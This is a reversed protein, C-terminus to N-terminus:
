VQTYPFSRLTCYVEPNCGSINLAPPQKFCSALLVSTAKIEGQKLSGGTQSAFSLSKLHYLPHKVTAQHDQLTTINGTYKMM